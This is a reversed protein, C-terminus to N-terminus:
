VRLLCDSVLKHQYDLLVTDGGSTTKDVETSYIAVQRQGAGDSIKLEFFTGVQRWFALNDSSERVNAYVLERVLVFKQDDSTVTRSKQRAQKLDM